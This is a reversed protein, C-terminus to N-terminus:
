RLTRQTARKNRSEDLGGDLPTKQVAHANDPEAFQGGIVLLM